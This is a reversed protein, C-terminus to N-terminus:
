SIARHKEGGGSLSMLIRARLCQDQAASESARVEKADLGARAASAGFVSLVAGGGEADADGTLKTSRM